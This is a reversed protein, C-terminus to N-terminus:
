SAVISPSCQPQHLKRGNSAAERAKRKGVKLEQSMFSCFEGGFEMM